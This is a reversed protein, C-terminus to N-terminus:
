LPLALWLTEHKQNGPVTAQCRAREQGHLLPQGQQLQRTLVKTHGQRSHRARPACSTARCRACTQSPKGGRTGRLCRARALAHSGQKAAHSTEAAWRARAASAAAVTPTGQLPWPRALPRAAQSSIGPGRAVLALIMGAQGDSRGCATGSQPCVRWYRAKELSEQDGAPPAALLPAETVSPLSFPMGVVARLICARWTGAVPERCVVHGVMRLIVPSHCAIFCSGVAKTM